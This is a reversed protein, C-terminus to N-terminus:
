RSSSSPSAAVVLEGIKEIDELYTRCDDDGFVKRKVQWQKQLCDLSDVVHQLFGLQAGESTLESCHLRHDKKAQELREECDRLQDDMQGFSRFSGSYTELVGKDAMRRHKELDADVLKKFRSQVQTLATSRESFCSEM